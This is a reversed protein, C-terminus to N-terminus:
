PQCYGKDLGSVVFAAFQQRDKLWQQQQTLGMTWMDTDMRGDTAIDLTELVIIIKDRGMPPSNMM